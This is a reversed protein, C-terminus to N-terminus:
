REGGRLPDTGLPSTGLPDTGLPASGLPAGAPSAAGRTTAGFGVDGASTETPTTGGVFPTGVQGTPATARRPTSSTGSSTDSDDDSSVLSRTLRGALVGAVAALGIFTGPKRRAYNRVDDLLTGPDRGELWSAVGGARSALQQVLDAAVGGGESKNAMSTLEDSVSHLGAAVRQQQTGAQDKLESSTQKFLDKAQTKVEGAVKTAQDKATGAVQQTAEKAGEAVHSAQEKAKEGTGSGSGASTSTNFPPTTAATGPTAGTPPVPPYSNSM